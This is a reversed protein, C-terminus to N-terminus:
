LGYFFIKMVFKRKLCIGEVAGVGVEGVGKVALMRSAQHFSKSLAGKVEQKQYSTSCM